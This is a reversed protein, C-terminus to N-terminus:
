PKIGPKEPEAKDLETKDLEAKYRPDPVKRYAKRFEAAAQESKGQAALILGRGFYVDPSDPQIREAAEIDKMALEYNKLAVYLRSRGLLWAPKFQGNEAILPAYLALADEGKAQAVYIESLEWVADASGPDLVLSRKYDAAALDKKGLARYTRARRLMDGGTLTKTFKINASFDALASEFQQKKFFESGRMYYFYDNEPYHKLMATLAGILYKDAERSEASDPFGPEGRRADLEQVFKESCSYHRPFREVCNQLLMLVDPDHKRVGKIAANNKKWEGILRTTTQVFIEPTTLAKGKYIFPEQSFGFGALTALFFLAAFVRKM